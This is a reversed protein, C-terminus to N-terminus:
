MEAERLQAVAATITYEDSDYHQDIGRIPQCQYLLLSHIVTKAVAACYCFASCSVGLHAQTSVLGVVSHRLVTLACLARNVPFHCSYSCIITFKQTCALSQCSYNISM